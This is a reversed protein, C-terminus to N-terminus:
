DDGDYDSDDWPSADSYPIDLERDVMRDVVESLHDKLTFLVVEPIGPPPSWARVVGDTGPPVLKPVPRLNQQNLLRALQYCCFCLQRSSALPIDSGFLELRKEPGLQYIRVMLVAEPHQNLNVWTRQLPENSQARNEFEDVRGQAWTLSFGRVFREPNRLLKKCEEGQTPGEDMPIKVLRVKIGPHCAKLFRRRLHTIARLPSFIMKLFADLRVDGEAIDAADLETTDHDYELQVGMLKSALGPIAGVINKLLPTCSIEYIVELSREAKRIDTMSTESQQKPGFEEKTTDTAPITKILYKWVTSYKEQLFELWTAVNKVNVPYTLTRLPPVSGAYPNIGRKGLGERSNRHLEIRFSHFNPNESILYDHILKFPDQGWIRRGLIMRNALKRHCRRLTFLYLYDRKEPSSLEDSQRYENILKLLQSLHVEWGVDESVKWSELISKVSDSSPKVVTESGEEETWQPHSAALYVHVGDLAIRGTAAVVRNGGPDDLSTVNLLSVLAEIDALATSRKGSPMRETGSRGDLIASLFRVQEKFTPNAMLQPHSSLQARYQM